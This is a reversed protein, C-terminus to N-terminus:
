EGVFRIGDLVDIWYDSEETKVENFRSSFFCDDRGIKKCLIFRWCDFM